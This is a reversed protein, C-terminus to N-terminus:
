EVRPLSSRRVSALTNNVIQQNPMIPIAPPTTPNEIWDLFLGAWKDVNLSNLGPSSNVEIIYYKNDDTKVLDVGGFLLGMAKVAEVAMAQGREKCSCIGIDLRRFQCNWSKFLKTNPENPIKEYIGVVEGNFVQVRYEHTRNTIPKSMYLDTSRIDRVMCYRVNMTLSDRVYVYDTSNMSRLIDNGEPLFTVEPTRITENAVLLQMMKKKNSANCVAQRTNLERCNVSTSANGWRILVDTSPLPLSKFARKIVHRSKNRLAEYLALGTKCSKKTYQICINM